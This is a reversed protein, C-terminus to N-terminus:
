ISRGHAGFDVGDEHTEDRGGHRYSIKGHPFQVHSHKLHATNKTPPTAYSFYKETYKTHNAHAAM